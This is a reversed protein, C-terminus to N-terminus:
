QPTQAYPQIKMTNIKYKKSSIINGEIEDFNLLHTDNFLVPSNLRRYRKHMASYNCIDKKFISNKNVVM